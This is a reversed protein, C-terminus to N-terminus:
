CPRMEDFDSGYPLTEIKRGIPADKQGYYAILQKKVVKRLEVTKGGFALLGAALGGISFLGISIAGIAVAGVAINGVAFIGKTVNLYSQSGGVDINILPIGFIEAPSTYRLRPATDSEIRRLEEEFRDLREDIDSM